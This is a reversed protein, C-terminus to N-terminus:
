REQQLASIIRAVKLADRALEMRVDIDEEEEIEAMIIDYLSYYAVLVNHKNM